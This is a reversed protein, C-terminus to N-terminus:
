MYIYLAIYMVVELRFIWKMIICTFLYLWYITWSICTFGKLLFVASYVSNRIVNHFSIVFHLILICAWLNTRARYSIAGFVHKTTGLFGNWWGMSCFFRVLRAYFWSFRGILIEGFLGLTETRHFHGKRCRSLHRVVQFQRPSADWEDVV